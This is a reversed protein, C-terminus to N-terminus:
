RTMLGLGLEPLGIKNIVAWTERIAQIECKSFAVNEINKASLNNGM